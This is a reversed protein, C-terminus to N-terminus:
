IMEVDILPNTSFYLLLGLCFLEFTQLLVCFLSFSPLPL